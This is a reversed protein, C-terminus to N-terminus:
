RRKELKEVIWSLSKFPIEEWGKLLADLGRYYVDGQAVDDAPFTGLIKVRGARTEVAYVEGTAQVYSVRWSPERFGPFNQWWVGYNAEPSLRRREDDAYYAELDPFGSSGVECDHGYYWEEADDADLLNFIRGCEQCRM